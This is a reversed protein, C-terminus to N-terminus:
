SAGTITTDTKIDDGVLLFLTDTPLNIRSQKAKRFCESHFSIKLDSAVFTLDSIRFFIMSQIESM